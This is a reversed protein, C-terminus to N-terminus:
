WGHKPKNPVKTSRIDIVSLWHKHPITNCLGTFHMPQILGTRRSFLTMIAHVIHVNTRRTHLWKEWIGNNSTKSVLYCNKENTFAVLCRILCARIQVPAALLITQAKGSCGTMKM